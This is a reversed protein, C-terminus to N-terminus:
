PSCPSASPPSPVSACPSGRRTTGVDERAPVGYARAGRRGRRVRSGGRSAAPLRGAFEDSGSSTPVDSAVSECIRGSHRGSLPHRALLARGTAPGERAARSSAAPVAYRVTSSRREGEEDAGRAGRLRARRFATHHVLRGAPWRMVDLPLHRLEPTRAYERPRDRPPPMSLAVAAATSPTRGSAPGGPRAANWTSAPRVWRVPEGLPEADQSSALRPICLCQELCPARHGFGPRGLRDLRGRPGRAALRDTGDCSPRVDTAAVPPSRGPHPHAREAPARHQQRRGPHRATPAVWGTLSASGNQAGARASVPRSLMAVPQRECRRRTAELAAAIVRDVPPRRASSPLAVRTCRGNVRPAGTTRRSDCSVAGTQRCSGNGHVPRAAHEHERALVQPLRLRM